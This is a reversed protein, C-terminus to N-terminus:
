KVFKFTNSDNKKGDLYYKANTQGKKKLSFSIVNKTGDSWNLTVAEDNWKGDGDWEGIFLRYSNDTSIKEIIGGLFSAAYARTYIQNNVKYTSDRYTLTVKDIINNANDPDLLDNGQGDSVYVLMKVPVYDVEGEDDCATLSFSMGAFLVAILLCVAFKKSVSSYIKKM